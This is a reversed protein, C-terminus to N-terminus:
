YYQIVLQPTNGSGFYNESSEFYAFDGTVDGGKVEAAFKLRFQARPKGQSLTSQLVETVDTEKWEVNDNVSLVGFAPNESTANYDQNELTGGYYLYDMKVAQGVGYPDGSIKAQYLRIVAKQITLSSLSSIDFSVFGRSILNSNRGIRIDIGTNGGGNTSQFGDLSPNADVTKTKTIPTPTATKKPAASPTAYNIPSTTSVATPPLTQTQASLTQPNSTPTPSPSNLSTGAFFSVSAAIAVILILSTAFILKIKNRPSDEKSVAVHNVM